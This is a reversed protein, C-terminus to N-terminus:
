LKKIQRQVRCFTADKNEWVGRLMRDKVNIGFETSWHCSIVDIACTNCSGARRSIFEFGCQQLLDLAIIIYINRIIKNGFSPPNFRFAKIMLYNQIDDYSEEKEFAANITPEILTHIAQSQKAMYLFLHSIGDNTGKFFPLARDVDFELNGHLKAAMNILVVTDSSLQFQKSPKLEDPKLLIKGVSLVTSQLESYEM